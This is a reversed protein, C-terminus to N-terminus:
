QRDNTRMHLAMLRALTVAIYLQGALAESIALSRAIPHVPTIDGYGMTTLTVFSYYIWVPAGSTNANVGNFAGPQFLYLLEYACAWVMGLLLLVAIAGQIHYHTVPGGPRYVRAAVVLAYLLFLVLTSAERGIALIDSPAVYAVWRVLLAVVALLMMGFRMGRSKGVTFTGVILLATFALNGVFRGLSDPALLVPMIFIIYVLLVLFISLSRDAEWFHLLKAWLRNMTPAGKFQTRRIGSFAIMWM